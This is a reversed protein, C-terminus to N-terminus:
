SIMSELMQTAVIVPKAERRALEIARTQVLPVEELPLEVGLDGRAVMIGDFSRVIEELNQVGQPKEIKAMVPIWVGMEAMVARAQEVDDARRVFSMALWDAGVGLAWRLDEVDKESMAPVSVAVGPLNIGKHDSLLGGEVARARVRRGDVSVVELS